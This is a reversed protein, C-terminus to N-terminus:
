RRFWHRSIVCGTDKDIIDVRATQGPMYTRDRLDILVKENPEWHELSCGAGGMTKVGNHITPIFDTGHLTEIHCKVPVEDRYFQAALRRNRYMKTGTNQLLVRSAYVLTHGGKNYDHIELIKIDASPFPDCLKIPQFFLAYIIAALIVTVVVMIAVGLVPSVADRRGPGM